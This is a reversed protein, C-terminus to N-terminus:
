TSLFSVDIAPRLINRAQISKAFAGALHNAARAQDESLITDVDVDVDVHRPNM